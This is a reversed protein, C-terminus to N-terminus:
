GEKPIYLMYFYLYKLLRTLRVDIDAGVMQEFKVRITPSVSEM